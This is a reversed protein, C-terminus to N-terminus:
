PQLLALVSRMRASFTTVCWGSASITRGHAPRCGGRADRIFDPVYSRHRGAAIRVGCWSRRRAEGRADLVIRAFCTPGNGSTAPWTSLAMSKAGFSGIPQPERDLTGRPKHGRRPARAPGPRCLRRGAPCAGARRGAAAYAWRRPLRFSAATARSLWAAYAHADRWSVKVIPRDSAAEGDVPLCAGHDVCRRYDAATGHRMIALPRARSRRARHRPLGGPPPYSAAPAITSHSPRCSFWRPFRRSRHHRPEARLWSSQSTPSALLRCPLNGFLGCPFGGVRGRRM